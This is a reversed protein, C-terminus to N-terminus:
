ESLCSLSCQRWKNQSALCYAFPLHWRTYFQRWESLCSLLCSRLVVPHLVSMPWLSLVLCYAVQWYRRKYFQRWELLCSLSCNTLVVPQLVSTVWLSLVLCFLIILLKDTGSLTFRVDSPSVLCYAFQWYWGTYFQCYSVWLSLVLCCAVQWYWRTYFQCWDSLCSLLCSRLVVVHLVSTTWPTLVLRCVVQWYWQSYFQRWNSSSSVLCFPDSLPFVIPSESLRSLPCSLPPRGTLM